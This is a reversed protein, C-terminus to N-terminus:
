RWTRSLRELKRELQALARDATTSGNLTNHTANWFETSVQNYRAGTVDSPRAVANVFTEFLEGFFPNAQLVEDDEYLAAITPNYAGEIARRKQEEYSALFAVLDMAEERMDSYRSVALNWGGLTGTSRGDEGGKPLATVGVKGKIPSDEANALAWAYPWNRMFVAHGAQFVGRAEEEQYALVGQPTINGVWSAAEELAAVAAPNNVTVEGADDVIRGGGYSYIWELANCTLGEYANGQFVYGVMRQNGAEREANQIEEAIAAMEAWTTPPEHGHEDLLDERYYLVGADTFWPIAKLEGDITNNEIIAEFHGDLTAPEFAPTLDVFHTGLIGPWIVDIQYVDIDASGSALIQQYLALRESTSNPTSVVKVPVGSQESWAAVGDRCLQLEQGVAGCSIALEQATAPAAGLMAAGTLASAAVFTTTRM